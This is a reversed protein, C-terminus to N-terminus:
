AAGQTQSALTHGHSLVALRVVSRIHHATLDLIVAQRHRDGHVAIHPLWFTDTHGFTTTIALEDAAVPVTGSLIFPQGSGGQLQLDVPPRPTGPRRCSSGARQNLPPTVSGRAALYGSACEWGHWTYTIFVYTTTTTTPVPAIADIQTGAPIPMGPESGEGPPPQRMVSPVPQNSASMPITAHSATPTIVAVVALAIALTGGIAAFRWKGGRPRTSFRSAVLRPSGFQEVARRAAEQPLVGTQEIRNAGERLHDEVEALMRQRRRALRGLENALETLYDRIPDDSV